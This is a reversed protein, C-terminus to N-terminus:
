VEVETVLGRELGYFSRVLVYVLIKWLLELEPNCQVRIRVNVVVMKVVLELWLGLGV